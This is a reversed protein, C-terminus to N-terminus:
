PQNGLEVPEIRLKTVQGGRLVSLELPKGILDPTLLKHLDDLDEIPKSNFGVLIDGIVLGAKDAPSDEEVSFLMVGMEQSLSARQATRTPLELPQGSIGLYARRVKGDKVIQDVVNKVTSAPVSISRAPPFTAINLGVVQGESNVLPGGSAGPYLAIDSIITNDITRGWWGQFPRGLGAVIGATVSPQMGRPNSVALVLEGLKLHDSDGFELKNLDPADVKLVAVDTFADRGVVKAEYSKGEMFSVKLNRSRRVVHDATAVLGDPGAVFGTGGGRWGWGDQPGVRVVSKATNEALVELAQSYDRLITRARDLSIKPQQKSMNLGYLM